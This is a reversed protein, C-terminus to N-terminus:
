DRDAKFNGSAELAEKSQEAAIRQEESHYFIATKYSEGRDFFQGGTDTPDIQGM